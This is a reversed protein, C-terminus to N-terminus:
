EETGSSTDLTFTAPSLRVVHLAEEPGNETAQIAHWYTSNYLRTPLALRVAIEVEMGYQWVIKTGESSRL